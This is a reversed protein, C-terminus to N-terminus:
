VFRSNRRSRRRRITEIWEETINEIKVDRNGELEAADVSVPEPADVNLFDSQLTQRVSINSTVVEAFLAVALVSMLTAIVRM